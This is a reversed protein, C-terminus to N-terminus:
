YLSRNKNAALDDICNVKKKYYSGIHDIKSPDNPRDFIRTYYDPYIAQRLRNLCHLSHYVDLGSFYFGSEPWQFTSGGLDVETKDFDLNLGGLLTEWAEDVASEPPGIYEQGKQDMVFRGESDLELGGSFSQVVLEIESRAPELDSAFGFEYSARGVSFQQHTLSFLSFFGFLVNLSVSIVLLILLPQFSRKQPQSASETAELLNEEEDQKGM